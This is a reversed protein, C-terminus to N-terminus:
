KYFYTRYASETPYVRVILGVKSLQTGVENEHINLKNGIIESTYRPYTFHVEKLGKASDFSFNPCYTAPIIKERMTM